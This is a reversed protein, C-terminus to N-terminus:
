YRLSQMKQLSKLPKKITILMPPKIKPKDQFLKAESDTTPFRNQYIEPYEKQFQKLKKRKDKVSLKKDEVINELLETIAAQSVSVKQDEFEKTSIQQCFAYMPIAASINTSPYTIQVRQLHHIHNDVANKLYPPVQLIEQQHDLMFSVLRTGLLEDLDAEKECRLICRSFTQIVLMRTGMAEHLQPMDVNMSIRSVMRMLLQLKRRNSPPLFLCCIQLAEIAVQELQPQLLSQTGNLCGVLTSQCGPSPNGSGDVACKHCQFMFAGDIAPYESDMTAAFSFPNPRRLGTPASFDHKVTVEAVQTNINIHSGVDKFVKSNNAANLENYNMKSFNRMKWSQLNWTQQDQGHVSKQNVANTSEGKLLKQNKSNTWPEKSSETLTWASSCRSTSNSIQQRGSELYLNLMSEAKPRSKAFYQMNQSCENDNQHRAENLDAHCLPKRLIDGSSLNVINGVSYCKSKVTQVHVNNLNTLNECSGGMLQAQNDDKRYSKSCQNLRRACGKPLNRENRNLKQGSTCQLEEQQKEPAFLPISQDSIDKRILSLLLCETSKFSNIHSNLHQSKAPQPCSPEDLNKRKGQQRNSVMIYGCLVLINVFLEYHEFTLLPEPLNLFYDAITKFVDREFGPYSPQTLDNNRPWNALCKMASLVWHPLDETKDQLIVVGHKSVNRVNYLIHQPIVKSFDLVDDLSALGLIKQLHNLVIERWAEEIDTQTVQRVHLMQEESIVGPVEKNAEEANVQLQLIEKGTPMKQPCECFGGKAKTSAANTKYFPPHRPVVKLPSTSPFRYLQSNDDLNEGGWRGKIDEIVHNKLFKRLLQLTQQRTVEPGFNSNNRLLEHLWDVAESATFCNTYKKLHLRHKRLPMGARFLKILENWLKTARYPGPTIIRSEM